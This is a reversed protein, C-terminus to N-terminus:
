FFMGLSIVVRSTQYKRVWFAEVAFVCCAGAEITSRNAYVSVDRILMQELLSLSPMTELARFSEVSMDLMAIYLNTWLQM